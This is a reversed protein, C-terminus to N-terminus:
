PLPYSKRVTVSSSIRRTSSIILLRGRLHRLQLVGASTKQSLTASSQCDVRDGSAVPPDNRPEDGRKGRGRPSTAARLSSPSPLGSGSLGRLRRRRCSERLSLWPSVAEGYVCLFVPSQADACAPKRKDASIRSMRFSYRGRDFRRVGFPGKAYLPSTLNDHSTCCGTLFLSSM